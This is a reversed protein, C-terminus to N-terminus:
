TLAYTLDRHHPRPSARYATRMFTIATAARARASRATSAARVRVLFPSLRDVLMLDDDLADGVGRGLRAHDGLERLHRGLEGVGRADGGGLEGGLM